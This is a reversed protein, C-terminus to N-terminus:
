TRSSREDSHLLPSEAADGATADRLLDAPISEIGAGIRSASDNSASADGFFDHTALNIGHAPASLSSPDAQTGAEPGRDSGAPNGAPSEGATALGLEAQVQDTISDFGSALKTDFNELSEMLELYIPAYTENQHLKLKKLRSLELSALFTVVVEPREGLDILDRMATLAGLKLRQKFHEIKGTLSVTEKKLITSRKRARVVNDQYAMALQTIDMERWRKEIPPKRNPRNFVDEGLRPFQGLEEGMRRFRELEMLQRLLEEQTLPLNDEAGAEANPDKEQPLLAKSKWHLLTAAMVLFDSAVDFNLEQMLRVYALYQDTIQSISVKSIDLEHSQILYLLLDLPGEFSQLRITIPVRHM